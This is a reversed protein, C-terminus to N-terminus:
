TWTVIDDVPDTAAVVYLVAVAALVALTLAFPKM